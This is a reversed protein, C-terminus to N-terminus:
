NRIEITKRELLTGAQVEILYYGPEAAQGDTGKGNWEFVWHGRQLNGEYLLSQPKGHFDLVRVTVRGLAEQDLIVSLHSYSKAADWPVPTLASYGEPRPPAPLPPRAFPTQSSVPTPIPHALAIADKFANPWHHHIGIAATMVSASAMLPWFWAGGFLGSFWKLFGPKPGPVRPEPLGCYRYLKEAEEAFQFAAEDSNLLSEELAADEAETLDERFFKEVLKPM